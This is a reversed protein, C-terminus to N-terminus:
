VTKVASVLFEAVLHKNKAIDSQIKNLAMATEKDVNTSTSGSSKAKEDSFRKFDSEMQAKYDAIEKEAEEKAKRLKEHKDKKAQAVLGAAQSEAELLRIIGQNQDYESMIVLYNKQSKTRFGM